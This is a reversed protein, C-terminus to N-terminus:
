TSFGVSVAVAVGVASAGGAAGASDMAVIEGATVGAAVEAAGCGDATCDAGLGVATFTAAGRECAPRLGRLAFYSTPARLLLTLIQKCTGSLDRLGLEVECAHLRWRDDSEALLRGM